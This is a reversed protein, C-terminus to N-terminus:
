KKLLLVYRVMDTADEESLNPHASM